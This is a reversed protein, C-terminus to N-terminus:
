FPKRSIYFVLMIFDEFHKICITILNRCIFFVTKAIKSGMQKYALSKRPHSKNKTQKWVNELVKKINTRNIDNRQGLQDWFSLITILLESNM